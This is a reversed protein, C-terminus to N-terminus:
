LGVFMIKNKIKIGAINDAIVIDKIEQSATFKKILWGRENIFYVETGMNVAIVGNRSHVSKAIGNITYVYSSKNTTNHIEINSSQNNIGNMNEIVKFYCKSLRIGVFSINSKDIEDLVTIGGNKLSLVKSETMCILENKQHYELNAVVMNSPIQYSYIIANEPKQEADDISVTKVRSEVLAGSIDLECFSLFKNDNSITVDTVLTSSLFTKFIEAGTNDFTTIVSKYSTGSVIIAVYGNENVFVSYINGDVNNEWVIKKDKILYVKQQNKEAVVLYKGKTEFVPSNINVKLTQVNKGSSNYLNLENNKLVAVYDHYAYVFSNDENETTIYPVNADSISKMLVYKDLFNRFSSNCIYLVIFFIIILIVGSIAGSIAIKKKNLKREETDEINGFQKYEILKM